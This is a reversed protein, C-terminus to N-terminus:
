GFIVDVAAVQAKKWGGIYAYLKKNTSDIHLPIQGTPINAPIGTPAGACSPLCFYGLTDTTAIAGAGLGVNVANGASGGLIMTNSANVVAGFGIAVANNLNNAGADSSAGLFTNQSGTTISVGAVRGLAVNSGGSTNSNLAAEGVAVNNSATNNQLAAYGVAVNQIGTSAAFLTTSGIGVNYNGEAGLGSRYGVFVSDNGAVLGYGAQLGMCVNDVGGLINYGAQVGMATNNGATASYLSHNGVSTNGNSSVNNHGSEMGVATCDTSSVLSHLAGYGLATCENATTAADLTARGISTNKSGTTVLQQSFSGVATNFAGAPSVGGTVSKLALYGVGVNETGTLTFNGAGEGWFQNRDTAATGNAFMRALGVTIAKNTADFTFKPDQALVPGAGVFLVDGSTGGVVPDGIAMTAPIGATGDGSFEAM